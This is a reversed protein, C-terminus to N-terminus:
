RRDIVEHTKIEADINLIVRDALSTFFLEASGKHEIFLCWVGEDYSMLVVTGDTFWMRVDSSYCGIGEYEYTSDEIILRDDSAGYVKAM